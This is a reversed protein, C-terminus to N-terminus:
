ILSRNDMSVNVYGIPKNDTKLCIAYRYGNDLKYAKAYKEYFFMETRKLSKLPFWPLYSNVEEDKYISFLDEMDDKTFKRLVLRETKLTPTNKNNM